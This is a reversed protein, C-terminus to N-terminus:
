KSIALDRRYKMTSSAVGFSEDLALEPTLEKLGIRILAMHHVAHEMNYILERYLNSPVLCPDGADYQQILELNINSSVNNLFGAIRDLCNKAELTNSELFIDRQRGDYDVQASPLGEFLCTYFELTHRVHQGISSGNLVIIPKIYLNNPLQDLVHSLQDIISKSAGVISM